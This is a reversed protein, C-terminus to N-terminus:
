TALEELLAKAKQLDVTDFGESFWAYIKALIHRAEDRKEQQQRLRGLSM